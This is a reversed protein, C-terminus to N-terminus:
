LGFATPRVLDAPVTLELRRAILWIRLLGGADESIVKAQGCPTAVLRCGDGPDPDHHLQHTSGGEIFAAVANQQALANSAELAYREFRGKQEDSWETPFIWGEELDGSEMCQEAKARLEADDPLCDIRPYLAVSVPMRVEIGYRTLAMTDEALWRAKEDPSLYRLVQQVNDWPLLLGERGPMRLGENSVVVEDATHWLAGTTARITIEGPNGHLRGAGWVSWGGQPADQVDVKIREIRTFRGATQSLAPVVGQPRYYVADQQPRYEYLIQSAGVVVAARVKAARMQELTYHEGEVTWFGSLADSVEAAAAVKYEKLEEIQLQDPRQYFATQCSFRRGIEPHLVHKDQEKHWEAFDAINDSCFILIDQPGLDNAQCYEELCAVILCDPQIADGGAKAPREGRITAMLAKTLCIPSLEIVVVSPDTALKGMVDRVVSAARQRESTIQDFVSQLRGRDRGVLEQKAKAQFGSLQKTLREREREVVRQYEGLVVEPLLLTSETRALLEPLEGLLDPESGEKSVLACAVYICTDLFIFRRGRAQDGAAEM